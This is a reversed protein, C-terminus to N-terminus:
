SKYLKGERFNEDLHINRGKLISIKCINGTKQSIYCLKTSFLLACEIKLM